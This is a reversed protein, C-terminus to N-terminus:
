EHGYYASLFNSWRGDEVFSVQHSVNGKMYGNEAIPDTRYAAATPPFYIALGTSGYARTSRDKGAYSHICARKVAADVADATTRVAPNKVAGALSSALARIDVHYFEDVLVGDRMHIGYDTVAERARAIDGQSAPLSAILADALKSLSTAVGDIQELDVAAFTTNPVDKRTYQRRYSEVLVSALEKGGMTPRAVLKPLWDDYQWGAGPELEESAAMFRAVKRLAYGTEVMDMLCADFGILDIPKALNSRSLAEVVDSNYLKSTSSDDYSIAKFPSGAVGAGSARPAASGPARESASLQFPRWGQGHNWVIVAYHSAPFHRSGWDLFAEFVKPDGMDQEGLSPSDIANAPVPDLGKTICFRHTDTWDPDTLDAHHDAGIQARDFQVLVNVAETSGVRAMEVFDLYADQELSNDGNMFILVTWSVPAARDQQCPGAIAVESVVTFGLLGIAIMFVRPCQPM